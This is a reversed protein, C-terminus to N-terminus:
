RRRGTKSQLTQFIFLLILLLKMIFEIDIWNIIATRVFINPISSAVLVSDHDDIRALLLLSEFTYLLLRKICVIPCHITLKWNGFVILAYRINANFLPGRLYSLILM